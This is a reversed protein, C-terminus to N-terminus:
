CCRLRHNKSYILTAIHAVCEPCFWHSAIFIDDVYSVISLWFARPGPINLDKSFVKWGNTEFNDEDISLVVELIAGSVPGGSPIGIKQFLFKDGFKYWRLQALARM